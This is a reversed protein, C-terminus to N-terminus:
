AVGTWAGSRPKAPRFGEHELVDVLIKRDLPNDDVVLLRRAHRDVAPHYRRDDSCSGRFVARHRHEDFMARANIPFQDTPEISPPTARGVPGAISPSNGHM